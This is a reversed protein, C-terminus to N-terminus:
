WEESWMYLITVTLATIFGLYVLCHTFWTLSHAGRLKICSDAPPGDEAGGYTQCPSSLTHVVVQVWQVGM